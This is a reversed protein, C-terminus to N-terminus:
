APGWLGRHDRKAQNEFDRFQNQYKFPFRTYAFGEGQKVLEANLFFNDPERYVYALTRGFKDLRQADYELRVKQHLVAQVSFTRAKFAYEDVVRPDLGYKKAHVQNRHEDEDHIEPTDVGILRVKEGNRLIITDGDAVYRVFATASDTGAGHCVPAM